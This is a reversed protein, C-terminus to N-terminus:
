DLSKWPKNKLVFMEKKLELGTFYETCERTIFTHCMIYIRCVHVHPLVFFKWGRGERHPDIREGIIYVVLYPCARSLKM